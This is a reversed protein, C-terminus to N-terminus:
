IDEPNYLDELNEEIKNFFSSYTPREVSVRGDTLVSTEEFTDEYPEVNFGQEQLYETTESTIEGEFYLTDSDARIGEIQAYTDEGLIIRLPNEAQREKIDESLQDADAILEISTNFLKDTM